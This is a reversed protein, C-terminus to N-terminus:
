MKGSVDARDVSALGFALTNMLIEQHKAGELDQYVGHPSQRVQRVCPVLLDLHNNVGADDRM